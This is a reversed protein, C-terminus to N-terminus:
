KNKVLYNKALFYAVITNNDQIEGKNILNEVDSFPIRKFEEIEGDLEQNSQVLDQALYTRQLTRNFSPAPYTEGILNLKNAVFGTEEQFERRAGAEPLEVNNIIGMSFGLSYLKAAHRWESVLLTSGDEWVPVIVAFEKYKAGEVIFYKGEKNNKNVLTEEFFNLFSTGVLQKRELMKWFDDYNKM